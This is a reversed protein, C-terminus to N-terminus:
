NRICMHCKVYKEEFNKALTSFTGKQATSWTCTTQFFFSRTHFFFNQCQETFCNGLFYLDSGGWYNKILGHALYVANEMHFYNETPSIFDSSKSRFACVLSMCLNLPSKRSAISKM